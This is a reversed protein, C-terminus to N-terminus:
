KKSFIIKKISISLVLLIILHVPVTYRAQIAFPLHVVAIYWSVSLLPMYEYFFEKKRIIVITSFLLGMFIFTLTIIFPFLVKLKGLTSDTAGLNKHNIGSVYFRFLHYFRSKLYYVPSAKINEITLEWLLKEREKTFESNYLLFIGPNQKKMQLLAMADQESTYPRIDELISEWEEEYQSVNQELQKQPYFSPRTYDYGINNNWYFYEQYGDPLKLQWYGMHAVGAGGEISTVKFKGHNIKNWVGFPILLLSFFTIYILSFRLNQRRIIFLYIAICFPFLLFAPKTLFLCYTVGGLLLANLNSKKALVFRMMLVTFLIALTESSIYGAYYVIQVNPILLVLFITRYILENNLAKIISLVCHISTFYLLLQILKVFIHSDSILQCIALFMPYGPTRLTEPYYKDLFYWSSFKGEWIGEGILWYGKADPFDIKSSISFVLIGVLYVIGLVLYYAKKGNLHKYFVQKM